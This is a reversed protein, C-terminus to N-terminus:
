QPKLSGMQSSAILGRALWQGKLAARTPFVRNIATDLSRQPPLIWIDSITDPREAELTGLLSTVAAAEAEGQADKLGWFLSYLVNVSILLWTNKPYKKAKRFKDSLQARLHDLAQSRLEPDDPVPVARSIPSSKYEDDRRRGPDLWETVEFHCILNKDQDFIAFDPAERLEAWTLKIKANDNYADVFRGLLWTEQERKREVMFRNRDDQYGHWAEADAVRFREAREYMETIREISM